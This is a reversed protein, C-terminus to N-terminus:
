WLATCVSRAGIRTGWSVREVGEDGTGSELSGSLGEDRVNGTTREAWTTPSDVDALELM